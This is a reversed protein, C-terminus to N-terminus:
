AIYFCWNFLISQLMALGEVTESDCVHWVQSNVKLYAPKAVASAALGTFKRKAMNPKIVIPKAQEVEKPVPKYKGDPMLMYGPQAM